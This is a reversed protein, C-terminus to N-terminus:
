MELYCVTQVGNNARLEFRECPRTDWLGSASSVTAVLVLKNWSKGRVMVANQGPYSRDEFELRAEEDTELMKMEATTLMKVENNGM